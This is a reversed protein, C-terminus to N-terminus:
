HPEVQDCLQEVHRVENGLEYHDVAEQVGVVDEEAYLEELLKDAAAVPGGGAEKRADDDAIEVEAAESVDIAVCDM